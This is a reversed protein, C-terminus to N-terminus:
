VVGSGGATLTSQAMTIPGSLEFTNEGDNNTVAPDGAFTIPLWLVNLASNRTYENTV